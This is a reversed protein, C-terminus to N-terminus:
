EKIKRLRLVGTGLLGSGFLLLTTPEPVAPLHPTIFTTYALMETTGYYDDGAGLGTPVGYPNQWLSISTGDGSCMLWEQIDGFMMPDIRIAWDSSEPRLRDIVGGDTNRSYAWGMDYHKGTKVIGIEGHQEPNTDDVLALRSKMDFFDVQWRVHNWYRNGGADVNHFFGISLYDGAPKYLYMKSKYAEPTPGNIPHASSSYYDYNDVPTESGTYATVSGAFYDKFGDFDTDQWVDFMVLGFASPVLLLVAATLILIHRM